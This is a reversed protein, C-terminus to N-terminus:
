WEIFTDRFSERVSQSGGCGAASRLEALAEEIMQDIHLASSFRAAEAVPPDEEFAVM